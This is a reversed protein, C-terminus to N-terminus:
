STKVAKLAYVMPIKGELYKIQYKGPKPQVTNQFCPYPSYDFERFTCIKMENLLLAELVESLSHNWSIERIKESLKGDSYSSDKEEVIAERNFYAYAIKSFSDNFMWVVPHFEAFILEGGPKLFHNITSAWKNMDPLWGITGYTTFVVDFKENLVEKLAYVDSCIFRASQAALQALEEAKEIAKDSLDVGTCDAGMRALSLTDQGFHCQLHLVKKGSIDGLLDLEISNLSTRGDLFSQNDYFESNFHLETRANWGKKNLALYDENM